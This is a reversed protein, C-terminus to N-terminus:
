HITPKGIAKVMLNLGLYARGAVRSFKGNMNSTSRASSPHIDEKTEETKSQLGTVIDYLGRVFMMLHRTTGERMKPWKAGVPCLAGKINLSQHTLSAVLRRLLDDVVNTSNPVPRAIFRILYETTYRTEKDLRVLANVPKEAQIVIYTLDQKSLIPEKPFVTGSELDRVTAHPRPRAAIRRGLM